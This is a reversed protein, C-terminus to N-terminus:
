DHRRSRGFRNLPLATVHEHGDWPTPFEPRFTAVVLAPLHQVREILRGFLEHSTPDIWHVDEILMLLPVAKALAVVMAIMADITREKVESPAMELAPYHGKIPIALLTALYPVIEKNDLGASAIMTELKKLRIAPPEGGVFDAGRWIQGIVPHFADNIHHPSCQYRLVFHREDHIRERLTALIRSKGIGAEGSLLVVQGEGEAATRWRDIMVAVEHERGVFATLTESRSAEFRSVNEIEGVITWAPVPAKFGKLEQLGLAKLEFARGLLRRTSESVVITDPGALAQLRSALNPTDGVVGRERADGEGIPEGVVVLGTSIGIRVALAVGRERRLEGLTEILALSARTAREADDEHARPYGFYISAGDGLWKAVHGDFRAVAGQFARILDAMDEPDFLATLATSDVLDCFMVTLQRRDAADQPKSEATQRERIARLIKLRHGLPVGLDMLHQDTLETLVDVDIENDRFVAEYQGLGLGKLWTGVDM